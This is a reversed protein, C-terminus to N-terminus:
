RDCHQGASELSRQMSWKSNEHSFRWLRGVGASRRWQGASQVLQGVGLLRDSMRFAAAARCRRGRFPSWASRTFVGQWEGSVM